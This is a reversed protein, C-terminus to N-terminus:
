VEKYSIKYNIRFYKALTKLNELDEKDLSSIKFHMMNNRYESVKIISSILIESNVPINMKKYFDPNSFILRYDYFTLDQLARDKQQVREYKLALYNNIEKMDLNSKILKRIYKEISEFLIFPEIKQHFLQAFDHATILHTITKKGDIALVADEKMLIESVKLLNEDENVLEFNENMYDKVKTGKTDYMSKIGISKWSLIGVPRRNNNCDNLVALQSFNKVAMLSMAKKIDDDPHVAEIKQLQDFLINIRPYIKM